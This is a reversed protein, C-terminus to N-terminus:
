VMNTFPAGSIFSVCKKNFFDYKAVSVPASHNKHIKQWQSCQCNDNECHSTCGIVFIENWFNLHRIRKGYNSWMIWFPRGSGAFDWPVEKMLIAVDRTVPSHGGDIAPFEPPSPTRKRMVSRGHPYYLIRRVIPWCHPVITNTKVHEGIYLPWKQSPRLWHSVVNCHLM